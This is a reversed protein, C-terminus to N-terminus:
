TLRKGLLLRRPRRMLWSACDVDVRRLHYDCRNYLTRASKNNELVHLYIENLGWERTAQECRRLLQRAIGCRRYEPSVALNSLYTSQYDRALWNKPVSLSMEVTGVVRETCGGATVASVLAALCLYHQGNACLRTRLDEQIGLRLFPHILARLGHPPHFSNTLVDAVGQLDQLLATRVIPSATLLTGRVVAKPTPHQSALSPTFDANM